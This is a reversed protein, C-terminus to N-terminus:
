NWAEKLSCILSRVKICRLLKDPNNQDLYNIYGALSVTLIYEGQWLCGLQMDKIDKGMNFTRIFLFYMYLM